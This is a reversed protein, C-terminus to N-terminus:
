PFNPLRAEGSTFRADFARMFAAAAKPSEVVILGNNQRM